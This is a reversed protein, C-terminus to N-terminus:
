QVDLAHLPNSPFLFNGIFLLVITLETTEFTELVPLNIKLLCFQVRNGSYIWFEPRIVEHQVLKPRVSLPVCLNKISAVCNYEAVVDRCSM